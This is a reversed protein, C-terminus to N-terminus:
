RQRMHKKLVIFWAKPLSKNFRCVGWTLEDEPSDHEDELESWQDRPILTVVRGPAEPTGRHDCSSQWFRRIFSTIFGPIRRDFHPPPRCKILISWFPVLKWILSGYGFIWYEEDDVGSRELDGSPSMRRRIRTSLSSRCQCSWKDYGLGHM